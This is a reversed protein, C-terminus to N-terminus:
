LVYPPSISEGRLRLLSGISALHGLTGTFPRYVRYPPSSDATWGMRSFSSFSWSPLFIRVLFPESDRLKGFSRLGGLRGVLLRPPFVPVSTVPPLM